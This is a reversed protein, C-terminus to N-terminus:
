ISFITYYYILNGIKSSPYLTGSKLRSPYGYVRDMIDPLMITLKLYSLPEFIRFKIEIYIRLM